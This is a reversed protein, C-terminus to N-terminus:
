KVMDWGNTKEVKTGKRKSEISNLEAKTFPEQGRVQVTLGRSCVWQQIHQYDNVSFFRDQVLYQVM